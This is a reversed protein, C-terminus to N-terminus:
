CNLYVVMIYKISAPNTFTVKTKRKDGRFLIVAHPNNHNKGEVDEAGIITVILLGTGTLSIKESADHSSGNQEYGMIGSFKKSDELFPIFTTAVTIQGRPKKNHPDDPDMSNLLSLTFDKKEYPILVNLPIVQM